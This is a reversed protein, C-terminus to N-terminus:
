STGDPARTDIPNKDSFVQTEKLVDQEDTGLLLDTEGSIQAALLQASTDFRVFRVSTGIEEAILRALEPRFGSLVGDRGLLYVPDLELWGVVLEDPNDQASADSAYFHLGFTLAITQVLALVGARVAKVKRM